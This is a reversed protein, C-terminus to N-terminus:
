EPPLERSKRRMEHSRKSAAGGRRKYVTGLIEIDAHGTQKKIDDDSVGAESAETIGSARNDMNWVSKPIGAATAIERWAKSFSQRDPWPLGNPQRAIPGPAADTDVKELCKLVLQCASIAHVVPQGTKSTQVVLEDGRRIMDLTMGRWYKGAVKVDGEEAVYGPKIKRWQGIVDNQRLLCEFQIAETLAMFLDGRRWAEEILACVQAYTMTTSRPPNKKFRMRDMDERLARCNKFGSEIGHNLLIRMIQIGGYAQRTGDTNRSTSMRKWERYWRRFDKPVVRSILRAGVTKRVMVLWPKYGEATNDQLEQYASDVDSEYCDALSAITGDFKPGLRERDDQEGDLWALVANQQSHCESAIKAIIAEAQQNDEASSADVHIRVTKTPYGAAVADNPAVWYLDPMGDVRRISKFGPAEFRYESNNLKLTVTRRRRRPATM